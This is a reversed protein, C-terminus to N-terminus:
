VGRGYLWFAVHTVERSIFTSKFRIKVIKTSTNVSQMGIEWAGRAGFLGYNSFALKDHCIHCRGGTKDYIANLKQDDM